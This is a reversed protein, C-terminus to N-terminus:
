LSSPEAFCLDWAQGCAQTPFRLNMSVFHSLSMNQLAQQLWSYFLGSQTQWFSVPYPARARASMRAASALPPSLAQAERLPAQRKGEYFASRSRLSLDKPQGHTPM